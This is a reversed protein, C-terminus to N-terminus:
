SFEMCNQIIAMSIVIIIVVHLPTTNGNKGETSNLFLISSGYHM